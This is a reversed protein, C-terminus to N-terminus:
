RRRVVRAHGRHRARQRYLFERRHTLNVNGNYTKSYPGPLNVTVVPAYSYLLGNGTGAAATVGYTANYQIFNPVLGGDNDVTAQGSGPPNASWVQWKYGNTASLATAGVNNVFQSSDNLVINGSSSTIAANLTIVPAQILLPGGTNTIPDNITVSGAVPDITLTGHNTFAVNWNITNPRSPPRAPTTTPRPTPSPTPSVPAAM